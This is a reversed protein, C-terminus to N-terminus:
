HQEPVWRTTLVCSLSSMVPVLTKYKPPDAGTHASFAKTGGASRILAARAGPTRPSVGATVPLTMDM